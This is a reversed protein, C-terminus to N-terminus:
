KHSRKQKKLSALGEPTKGRYQNALEKVKKKKAAKEKQKQAQLQKSYKKFEKQQKRREFGEMKQKQFLLNQKVRGMHKDSKVMEALYDFPRMHSVGLKDLKIRSMKVANLAQNYFEVERKLDDEIDDINLEKEAVFSMTEDFPLTLKIDELRETLLADNNIFTRTQKEQIGNSENKMARLAELEEETEDKEEINSLVKPADLNKKKKQKVKRLASNKLENMMQEEEAGVVYETKAQAKGSRTSKKKNKGM